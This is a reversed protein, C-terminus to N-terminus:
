ESMDLCQGQKRGLRHAKGLIDRASMAGGGGWVKLASNPINCQDQAGSVQVPVFFSRERGCSAQAPLPM